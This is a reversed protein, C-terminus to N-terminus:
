KPANHANIDTKPNSATEGSRGGEPLVLWLLQGILDSQSSPTLLRLEAAAYASFQNRSALMPRPPPQDSVLDRLVSALERIGPEGLALSDAHLCAGALILVALTSSALGPPANALFARAVRRAALVDGAAGLALPEEPFSEFSRVSVLCGHVTVSHPPVSVSKRTGHM